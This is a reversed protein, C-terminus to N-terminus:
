IEIKVEEESGNNTNVGRKAHEPGSEGPRQDRVLCVVVLLGLAAVTDDQLECM